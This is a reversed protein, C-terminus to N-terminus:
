QNRRIVISLFYKTWLYEGITQDVYQKLFKLYFLIKHGKNPIYCSNFRSDIKIFTYFDELYSM